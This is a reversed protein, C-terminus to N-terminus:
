KIFIHTTHIPITPHPECASWGDPSIPGKQLL